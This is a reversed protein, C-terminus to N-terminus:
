RSLFKRAGSPQGVIRLGPRCVALVTGAVVEQVRTLPAALSMSGDVYRASPFNTVRLVFPWSGGAQLVETRIAQRGRLPSAELGGDWIREGRDHAAATKGFIV